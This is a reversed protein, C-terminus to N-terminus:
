CMWSLGNPVGHFLPRVGYGQPRPSGRRIAPAAFTLGLADGHDPWPSRAGEHSRRTGLRYGIALREPEIQAVFEYWLWPEGSIQM